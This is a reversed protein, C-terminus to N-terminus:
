INTRQRNYIECKNWWEWLVECILTKSTEMNRLVNEWEIRCNWDYRIFEENTEFRESKGWQWRIDCYRKNARKVFCGM